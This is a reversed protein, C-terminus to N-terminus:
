RLQKQYEAEKIKMENEQEEKDLNFFIWRLGRIAEIKDPDIEYAKMMFPLAMEISQMSESQIQVVDYIDTETEYLRELAFAGKNYYSVSLSYNAPWNKDDIELVKLLYDNSITYHKLNLDRDEQYLKRHVTSMALYFEIDADQMSSDPFVYLVLEKYNEYYGIAEGVTLTDREDIIDSADNYFSPALFILAKRNQEVLTGAEDLETSKKFSSIAKARAESGRDAKDIKAFIDKYIFARIHWAVKNSAGKKTMVVEDIITAAETLRGERYLLFAKEMSEDGQSMVAQPLSFLLLISIYILKKMAIM